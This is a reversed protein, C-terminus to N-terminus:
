LRSESALLDYFGNDRRHDTVNYGIALLRQSKDYLFDFKLDAFEECLRALSQISLLREKARRSTEILQKRFLELFSKEEATVEEEDYMNVQPLLSVELSALDYLPLIRSVTEQLGSFREPFRTISLWPSSEYIENFADRVQNAFADAWWASESDEDFLGTLTEADQLLIQM